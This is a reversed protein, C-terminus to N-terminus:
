QVYMHYSFLGQGLSIAIPHMGTM